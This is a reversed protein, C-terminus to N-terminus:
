APVSTTPWDKHSSAEPTQCASAGFENPAHLSLSAISMPGIADTVTAGTLGVMATPPVCCNVALANSAFLLGTVLAVNVHDDLAGDTAVTLAVPRAVARTWPSAVMVAVAFPM